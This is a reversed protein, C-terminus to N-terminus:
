EREDVGLVTRFEGELEILARPVVESVDRWAEDKRDSLSTLEHDDYNKLYM